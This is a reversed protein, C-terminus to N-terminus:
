DDGLKTVASVKTGPELTVEFRTVTPGRSMRSVGAGVNFQRLTRELADQMQGLERKNGVAERGTRLLSLDPLAYHEWDEAPPALMTAAGATDHDVGTPMLQTDSLESESAAQDDHDDEDADDLAVTQEGADLVITPDDAEEADAEDAEDAEADAELARRARREAVRDRVARVRGAAHDALVRPSTGTALLLGTAALAVLLVTAGGTAAVARLPLAVAAGAYGAARWLAAQDADISPAGAGLHWLGLLGVLALGVGAVTRANAERPERLLLVGAAALVPPAALGFLGFVGRFTGELFVGVIGAAEAYLGLATLAALVLLAIGWIDRLYDGVTAEHTSRASTKAPRQNAQGGKAKRPPTRGSAGRKAGSPKKRDTRPGAM